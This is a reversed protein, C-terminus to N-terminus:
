SDPKPRKKSHLYASPTSPLTNSVRLINLPLPFTEPLTITSVNLVVSIDVQPCPQLRVRPMLILNLAPPFLTRIQVIPLIILTINLEAKLISKLLVRRTPPVQLSFLPTWKLIAGPLKLCTVVRAVPRITTRCTWLVLCSTMQPRNTVQLPLTKAFIMLSTLSWQTQISRLPTLVINDPRLRTGPLANRGRLWTPIQMAPILPAEPFGRIKISWSRGLKSPCKNLRLIGLTKLLIILTMETVWLVLLWDPIVMCEWLPPM